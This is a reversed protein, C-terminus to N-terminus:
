CCVSDFRFLEIVRDRRFDFQGAPATTVVAMRTPEGDGGRAGDVVTVVAVVTPWCSPSFSLCASVLQAYFFSCAADDGGQPSRGSVV